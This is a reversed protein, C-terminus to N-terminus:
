VGCASRCWPSRVPGDLVAIPDVACTREPAVASESPFVRGAALADTEEAADLETQFLREARAKKLPKTLSGPTWPSSRGKRLSQVNHVDAANLMEALKKRCLTETEPHKSLFDGIARVNGDCRSINGLCGKRQAKPLSKANGLVAGRSKRKAHGEKARRSIEDAERAARSILAHMATQSIRGKDASIITLGQLSRLVDLNRSLRDMSAVIFPFGTRRAHAIACQLEPRMHSGASSASAPESYIAALAARKKQVYARIMDEQAELSFGETAQGETSVRTYGIFSKMRTPTPQQRPTKTTKSM